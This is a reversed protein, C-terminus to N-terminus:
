TLLNQYEDRLLDEYYIFLDIMMLKFIGAEAQDGLERWRDTYQDPMNTWEELIQNYYVPVLGDALEAIYQDPDDSQKINDFEDAIINMADNANM